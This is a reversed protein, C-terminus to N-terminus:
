GKVLSYGNDILVLSYGTKQIWASGAFMDRGMAIFDNESPSWQWLEFLLFIVSILLITINLYSSIFLKSQITFSILNQNLEIIAM